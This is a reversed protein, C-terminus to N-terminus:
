AIHHAVFALKIVSTHDSASKYANYVASHGIPKGTRNPRDRRMFSSAMDALLPQDLEAIM